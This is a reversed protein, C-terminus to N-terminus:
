ASQKSEEGQIYIPNKKERVTDKTIIVEELGSQAPALFMVELMVEELISRLSRAGTKKTMAVEVVAVLAEQEFTLKVNEMELLRQYQKILANKPELLIKMLAEADLEGLTAIVPLRGIIEPILGYQLLDDPEVMALLDGVKREGANKSIGGFGITGEAVRREIVRDLDDFAGGCIFLINKTNIQVFNQEPHKRGGKPPVNAITGELMKLLSQQVGEGSVDRTISPNASKRAVKDIEDIYIIGSEAKPVDYDAAQLLRVLVSEVDEGVYGAETLVTADAICFPVQLMKAMTQALLTKGTGTPGVLLINSKELEVEDQMTGHQIRKYHNYLAVSLVKKAQEQGIVYEDLSEKIEPPTPLDEVTTLASRTMEEALIDNCMLVCENCIYVNPGTILREVEEANRNCFSCQLDRSPSRKKM